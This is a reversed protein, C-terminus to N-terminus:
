SASANRVTDLCIQEFKKAAHMFGFEAEVLRRASRSLEQGRESNALLSVVSASFDPATDACLFHEGAQIPLGEVGISTSVVPCGMAMAEFAKIRTGGGVRLPIVFADAGAIHPRVDDVYGTFEWASSAREIKRVLSEPPARGVVKMKVAPLESEIGPWIEAFFFEIADINAMWDMSGCFVIQSRNLPECYGLFETDVGTPITHCDSVGFNSDFFDKDRESVAVIADFRRLVRREFAYMKQYQNRWLAKHMPTQAVQWHRKFIEVEVNHTFLVAPSNWNGPALVVSHPFDFVVIDPEDSLEEAVAKAGARSWDSMVPIPIEKFVWSAKRIKNLVGNRSVDPWTVLEDCVGEIENAFTRRWEDRCPMVLRVRFAGGKLGRLIQATRIKGGSDTPFLFRSSFFTLRPLSGHAEPAV